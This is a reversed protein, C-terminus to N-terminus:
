HMYKMCLRLVHLFFFAPSSSLLKRYKQKLFYFSLNFLQFSLIRIISTRKLVVLPYVSFRSLVLGRIWSTKDLVLLTLTTKMLYNWLM